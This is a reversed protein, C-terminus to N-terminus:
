VSGCSRIALAVNASAKAQGYYREASSIGQAALSGATPSILQTLQQLAQASQRDQQYANFAQYIESCTVGDGNTAASTMHGSTQCGALLLTTVAVIPVAYKLM